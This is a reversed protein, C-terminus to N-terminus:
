GNWNFVSDYGTDRAMKLISIAEAQSYGNKIFADVMLGYEIDLRTAFTGPDDTNISVLMDKGLTKYYQFIPHSALGELKGITLNSSPNFEVIIRKRSMERLLEAQIQDLLELFSPERYFVPIAVKELRRSQCDPNFLELNRLEAVKSSHTGKGTSPGYGRPPQPPPFVHRLECLAKLIDIFIFPEVFVKASLKQVESEILGQLRSDNLNAEIMRSHIWVLDEQLIKRPILLSKGREKQFAEINWGAALGHGLRDGCTMEGYRIVEHMARMGSIPHYFDEGAHYTLGLRPLHVPHVAHGLERLRRLRKTYPNKDTPINEFKGRLVRLYPTFVHPPCDREFNAVDIGTILHGFRPNNLRFYHLVAAERDLKIRLAGFSTCPEVRWSKKKEEPTKERKQRLFHIIFRTNAPWQPRKHTKKGWTEEWTRFFRTYGNPRDFPSIRLELRTLRQSETLFNLRREHIRSEVRFTGPSKEKGRGFFETFRAVGPNTGPFQQHRGLFVNKAFLYHDLLNLIERTASTGPASLSQWASTLMVREQWLEPVLHTEPAQNLLNKYEPLIAKMLKERHDRADEIERVEQELKELSHKDKQQRYRARFSYPELRELRVRDPRRRDVVRQWLLPIPGSGGLHVHTDAIRKSLLRELEFDSPGVLTGWSTLHGVQLGKQQRVLAFTILADPDFCATLERWDALDHQSIKPQRDFFHIPSSLRSFM